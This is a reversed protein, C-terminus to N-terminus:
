DLFTLARHWQEAITKPSYRERIYHQGERTMDNAAEPNGLAWEIGARINGGIHIFGSFERYAPLDEAVVFLGNRLSELVRNASKCLSKGTPLLSIGCLQFMGDMLEPSWQFTMPANSVVTLSPFDQIDPMIRLLDELNSKHGFWLLNENVHPERERSEYPDPIVIATKGTELEIVHKMEDSNCVILDAERCMRRYHDGKSDGFHNDCIDAIKRRYGETMSWDWGHKQMVLLDKGRKLGMAELHPWILAYRFRASAVRAPFSESLFTVQM